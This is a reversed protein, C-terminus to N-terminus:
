NNIITTSTNEELPSDDTGAARLVARLTPTYGFFDRGDERRIVIHTTGDPLVNMQDIVVMNGHFNLTAGLGSSSNLSNHLLVVESYPLRAILGTDANGRSEQFHEFRMEYVQAQASLGLTIFMFFISLLLFRKM